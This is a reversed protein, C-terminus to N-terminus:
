GPWRLLAAGWSYGVGFGALLVRQGPSFKKGAAAHELALPITSSVTNGTNELFWVMKEPPVGLKQRLHDLMYRNAQHFVFWDIDAQRLGGQALVAALLEPVRRLTFNFIQTGNMFLDDSSRTNGSPDTTARATDASRPLRTGGAPIILNRAGSGDTGLVFHDLGPWDAARVLTATAADGFLTRVSRDRPNIFKTYTDGTLVLGQAAMGSRILASALGLSYLYGSCGQNIDFAACQAGLGLRAHVLCATAPLLHDPTQTCLILFDVRSRDAGTDRLLKEAATTALDSVCEDPGAVHRQAIGTKAFIEEATWGVDVALEANTVVRAPLQSRIAAITAWRDTSM